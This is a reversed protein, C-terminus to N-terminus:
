FTSTIQQRRGTRAASYAKEMIEIVHRAHEATTLPERGERVCDALHVIDAYVHAEPIKRHPGKVLDPLHEAPVPPFQEAHPGDVVVNGESLEVRGESGHFRLRGADSHWTFASYVIGLGRDGFDLTLVTMDDTEVEIKRGKYTREPLGIESAAIVSRAPGLIGTLTHLCYVGMDLLPGGGPKYYWTPDVDTLVDGEQRFGEFEHGAFSMGNIAFYPRGIAGGDVMEKIVRHMPRLMQGPSASVKVGERRAAEILRDAEAVTTTMAKNLHVHKGARVAAMAQEFHLGIPTALSVMDVDARALLEGYDVFAQAVGFKKATAEARGPAADCVAALVCRGKLDEQTLHPLLGRQSVSGCGVLGIRVEEAM